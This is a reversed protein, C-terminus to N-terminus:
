LTKNRDFLNGSAVHFTYRELRQIPIYSKHIQYREFFAKTKLKQLLNELLQRTRFRDLLKDSGSCDIFKQGPIKSFLGSKTM